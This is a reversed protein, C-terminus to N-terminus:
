LGYNTTGKLYRLIRKIAMLHTKKLNVFFITILGVVLTINTYLMTMSIYTTQNLMKSDDKKSLKHRTSMPTGVLKSDEMGFTKLIEKIYNSQSIYIDDKM